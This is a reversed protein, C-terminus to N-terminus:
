CVCKKPALSNAAPAALANCITEALLEQCEQPTASVVDLGQLYEQLRSRCAVDQQADVSWFTRAYKADPVAHGFLNQFQGLNVWTEGCQERDMVDLWRMIIEMTVDLEECWFEEVAGNLIQSNRLDWDRALATLYYKARHRIADSLRQDDIITRYIQVKAALIRLCRPPVFLVATHTGLDHFHESGVAAYPVCGHALGDIYEAETARHLDPRTWYLPPRGMARLIGNLEVADPVEITTADLRRIGFPALTQPFSELHDWLTSFEFDGRVSDLNTLRWHYYHGGHTGARVRVSTGHNGYIEAGDWTPTIAAAADVRQPRWLLPM